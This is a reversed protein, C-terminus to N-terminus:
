KAEQIKIIQHFLHATLAPLSHISEFGNRSYLRYKKQRQSWDNQVVLDCYSNEFLSNVKQEILAEDTTSTLKFGILKSKPSWKKIESILKPNRRLTLTVTEADSSIKGQQKEVSYDSVAAAHIIFDYNNQTLESKLLNQLDIFTTYNVKRCEFKPIKSSYAHAFTVEFGSEILSDAITAATLGTSKNTIVRVDDIPEATGGATILIKAPKTPLPKLSNESVKYYKEVEQVILDPELLRGSGIEGCALVGSATELIQINMKKLRLISEQTVPHMYMKTNMAPALLFPKEFDHALFLTTLLDDGIGYAIKNIYDNINSAGVGTLQDYFGFNIVGASVDFSFTDGVVAAKNSMVNSGNAVYFNTDAAEAGLFTAQFSTDSDVSLQGFLGGTAGTIVDHGCLPCAVTAVTFTVPGSSALSLTSAQASMAVMTFGLALLLKKM